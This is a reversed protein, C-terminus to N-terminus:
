LRKEMANAAEQFRTSGGPQEANMSGSCDLIFVINGNSVGFQEHIAPDARIALSARDPVQPQIQAIEPLPYLDVPTEREIRQGRYHGVVTVRSPFRQPALVPPPDKEAEDIRPS